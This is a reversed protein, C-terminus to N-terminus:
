KFFISIKNKNVADPVLRVALWNEMESISKPISHPLEIDMSDDNFNMKYNKEIETWRMAKGMKYPEITDVLCLLFLFPYKTLKIPSEQKNELVLDFLKFDESEYMKVTEDDDVGKRAYFINHSLIVWSCLNYINLLNKSWFLDNMYYGESEENDKPKNLEYINTLSNFLLLGALIGHDPKKISEIDHEMRYDFYKPYVKQMYSPVGKANKLFHTIRKYLKFEGLDFIKSCNEFRYGADHFLAIMFWFYPFTIVAKPNQKQYYRIKKDIVVKVEKCNNYVLIGLFFVSFVHEDSIPHKLIATLPNDQLKGSLEIYKKCFEEYSEPSKPLDIQKFYYNWHKPNSYLDKYLEEITKM